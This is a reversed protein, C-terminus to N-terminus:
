AQFTDTVILCYFGLFGGFISSGNFVCWYAVAVGFINLTFEIAVFQGRSTHEATETAWVPVISNLVGTGIGNVARACIMWSHNQASCQLSAGLVAWIAGLAITKIRGQKDGVWGGLFAGFLTGLYYVAVIGGQLLSDTVVVQSTAEDHYGFGMLEAYDASTNVGGM